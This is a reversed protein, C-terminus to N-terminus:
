DYDVVLLSEGEPLVIGFKKSAERVKEWKARAEAWIQETLLNALKCTEPTISDQDVGSNEAVLIAMYDVESEYAFRVRQGAAEDVVDRYKCDIEEAIEPPNLVGFALAMYNGQGM